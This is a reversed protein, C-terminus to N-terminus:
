RLEALRAKVLTRVLADPLPKDNPFQFSGKSQKYGVLKDALAPIVTGSHPAYVLHNKFAAFGAVAKGNVRFAPAGYSICEEADPIVKLISRRLKELTNRAPDGLSALYADITAAPMTSM